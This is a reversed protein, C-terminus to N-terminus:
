CVDHCAALKSQGVSTHHRIELGAKTKAHTQPAFYKRREVSLEHSASHLFVLLITSSLMVVLGVKLAVAVVSTNM